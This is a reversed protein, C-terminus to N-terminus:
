PGNFVLQTVGSNKDRKSSISIQEMKGVFHRPNEANFYYVLFVSKTIDEFM